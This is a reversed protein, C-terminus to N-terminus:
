RPLGLADKNRSLLRWMPGPGWTVSLVASSVPTSGAATPGPLTVSTGM